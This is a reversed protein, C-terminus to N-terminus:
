ICEAHKVVQVAAYTSELCNSAKAAVQNGVLYSLAQVAVAARSNLVKPISHSSYLLSLGGRDLHVSTLERTRDM